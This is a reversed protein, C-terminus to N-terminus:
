TWDLKERVLTLCTRSCVHLTCLRDTHCEYHKSSLLSVFISTHKSCNIRPKAVARNHRLHRLFVNFHSFARFLLQLHEIFRYSACNYDCLQMTIYIVYAPKQSAPISQYSIAILLECRAISIMSRSFYRGPSLSALSLLFITQNKM